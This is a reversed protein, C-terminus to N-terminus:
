SLKWGHYPESVITYPEMTGQRVGSLRRMQHQLIRVYSSWWYRKVMFANKAMGVNGIILPVM